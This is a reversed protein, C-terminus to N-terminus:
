ATVHRGPFRYLPTNCTRPDRPSAQKCTWGAAFPASPPRLPAFKEIGVEGHQPPVVGDEILRSCDLLGFSSHSFTPLLSWTVCFTHLPFREVTEVRLSSDKPHLNMRLWPTGLVSVVALCPIAMNKMEWRGVAPQFALVSSLLNILDSLDNLAVHRV